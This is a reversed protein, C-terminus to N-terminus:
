IGEANLAYVLRNDIDSTLVLNYHNKNLFAKMRDDSFGSCIVIVKPLEHQLEEFYEDKIAPNVDAIPYTYSFRTAHRRQSMVYIIDWNGYVSIADDSDTYQDIIHMIQYIGDGNRKEDNRTVYMEPLDSLLSNWNPWVVYYFACIGFLLLVPNYVSATANISKLERILMTVPYAFMPIMIMAYHEYQRGSMSILLLTVLMYIAYTVNLVRDRQRHYIEYILVAMSGIYCITNAFGLSTIWRAAMIGITGTDDYNSYMLNFAIYTDWFEKIADGYALWAMFPMIVMLVGALFMGTYRWLCYWAGERINTIVVMIAFVMWVSIMNPRLMLVCGLCIGCVILQINTIRKYALYELFIYLAIAVFPMAYEEVLNGEKFYEFLPAISIFAVLYAGSKGIWMRAIKYIFFLTITLCVLEICWVGRYYSIQNGIYNILYILPGKHDFSDKYPMYGRQMMLAVTKFVSSDVSSYGGVWPHLPSKTLFLFSTIGMVTLCLLSEIINGRPRDLKAM